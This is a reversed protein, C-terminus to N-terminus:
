QIYLFKFTIHHEMERFAKCLPKVRSNIQLVGLINITSLVTPTFTFQSKAPVFLFGYILLFLYGQLLGYLGMTNHSTSAGVNELVIPECIATVNDAKRAPRGKGRWSSDQYENRNSASDVGPGYHQKYCLAQLFQAIAHGELM